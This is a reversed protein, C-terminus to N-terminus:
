SLVIEGVEVGYLEAAEELDHCIVVLEGSDVMDFVDIADNEDPTMMDKAYVINSLKTLRYM